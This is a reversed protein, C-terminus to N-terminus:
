IMRQVVPKIEEIPIAFGINQSPYIVITNMGIVEGSLNILPGGSNGPNIAADTQIVKRYIRGESHISRNKGSVIGVTYTLGLGFPNGVAMVWEGIRTQKSSGLPLSKVPEPPHIQLIALDYQYNSWVVKAQFPNRYGHLQVQIISADHIVHENTLIYGKRHIIFGTGFQNRTKEHQHTLDPFLFGWLSSEFTLSKAKEETLISVVSAKVNQVIPVFLNAPHLPKTLRRFNRHM